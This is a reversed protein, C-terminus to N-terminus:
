GIITDTPGLLRDEMTHNPNSCIFSFINKEPSNLAEEISIIVQHIEKLQSFSSLINEIIASEAISGHENEQRYKVERDSLKSIDPHELDFLELKARYIDRLREHKSIAANKKAVFTGSDVFFDEEPLEFPEDLASCLAIHYKLREESYLMKTSQLLIDLQSRELKLKLM